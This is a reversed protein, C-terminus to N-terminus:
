WNVQWRESYRGDPNSKGEKIQYCSKEARKQLELDFEAEDFPVPIRINGKWQSLYAANSITLENLGDPGPSLLPEGKLIANAFNQLIGAHATEKEDSTIELVEMPIQPSNSDSEFRIQNEDQELKWWKLVGNELVLKGRDGAIELRNTGPYEGTTTIFTGTAGNAYRVFITADDEVEINHYKAVDCFATVEQPMGCIWQWLDLNHPAQNLLVGGGEGSWTARWDGSDYYRQSRYWNTIIWVSRKLEGLQGSQVIERARRFLPNTRQNFMIAFVRDTKAATEALRRAKSVSVDMPKETLVHLGAELVATAILAHMPHPVAVIVADAAGSALLEQWSEFQRVGPFRKECAELRAPNIDCVAALEMGDIRGEFLCTAHATGMNGIGIVATRIKNMSEAESQAPM